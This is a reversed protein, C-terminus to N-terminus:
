PIEFCSNTIRGLLSNHAPPFQVGPGFPKRRKENSASVRAAEPRRGQAVRAASLWIRELCIVAGNEDTPNCLFDAFLHRFTTFFNSEGRFPGPKDQPREPDLCLRKSFQAASDLEIGSHALGHV